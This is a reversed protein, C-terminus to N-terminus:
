QTQWDQLDTLTNMNVFAIEDTFQVEVQRHMVFWSDMKRGGKGLYDALDNKLHTALLCFVPHRQQTESKGTVAIAIDAKAAV